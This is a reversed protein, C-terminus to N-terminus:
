DPRAWYHAVTSDPGACCATIRDANAAARTAGRLDIAHLRVVPSANPSGISSSAGRRHEPLPTPPAPTPDPPSSDPCKLGRRPPRNMLVHTM